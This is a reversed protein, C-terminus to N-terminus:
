HRHRQVDSIRQQSPFAMSYPTCIIIFTLCRWLHMPLAARLDLQTTQAGINPRREKYSAAAHYHDLDNM